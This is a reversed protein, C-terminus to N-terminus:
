FKDKIYCKSLDGGCELNGKENKRLPSFKHSCWITTYRFSARVSLSGKKEKNEISKEEKMYYPCKNM